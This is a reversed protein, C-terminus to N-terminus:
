TKSKNTKNNYMSKENSSQKRKTSSFWPHHLAQVASIRDKPNERLLHELLDVAERSVKRLREHQLAKAVLKSVNGLVAGPDSDGPIGTVQAAM